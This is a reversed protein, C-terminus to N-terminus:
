LCGWTMKPLNQQSMVATSSNGGM